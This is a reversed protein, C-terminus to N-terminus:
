MMKITTQQVLKAIENYKAKAKNFDKTEIFKSVYFNNDYFNLALQDEGVSGPFSIMSSYVDVDMAGAYDTEIM